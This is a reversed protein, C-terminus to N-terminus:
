LHIESSVDIFEKETFDKLPKGRYQSMLTAAHRELPWNEASFVAWRWGHQQYTNVMLADLWTSKGHGPIGTILTWERPRVTYFEDVSRWGASIGPELGRLQLASLDEAFDAVRMVEFRAQTPASKFWRRERTKSM